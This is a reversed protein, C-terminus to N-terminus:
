CLFCTISKPQFFFGWWRLACVELSFYKGLECIAAEPVLLSLIFWENVKHWGKIRFKKSGREEVDAPLIEGIFTTNDMGYWGHHRKSGYGICQKQTNSWTWLKASHCISGEHPLPSSHLLFKSCCVFLSVKTSKRTEKYSPFKQVAVIKNGVFQKCNTSHMAWKGSHKGRGSHFHKWTNKRIKQLLKKHLNIQLWNRRCYM